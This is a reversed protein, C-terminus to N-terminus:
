YTFRVPRGDRRYRTVSSCPRYDCSEGSYTFWPASNLIRRAARIHESASQEGELDLAAGFAEEFIHRPTQRGIFALRSRPM